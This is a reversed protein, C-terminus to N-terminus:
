IATLLSGISFRTQLTAGNTFGCRAYRWSPAHIIEAYFGGGAVATTPVSKIRRWNTNDRSVDLWLTGTQDSEASTRFEKAYTAANAFATATATVTLDRSAGTFSAAAALVTSSEDFWIGAGAVAGARNTGAALTPTNASLTATLNLNAASAQHVTQVMRQYPLESLMASARVNGGAFATSVRVRIYGALVPGAFMRTTIAAITIAAINPTPTLATIEEVAWVNGAPANTPDNTQEFIIAGASIGAGGIIQISASHFNTADYWGSGTGTLLDINLAAISAAAGVAVDNPLTVPSSASPQAAGLAPTKTNLAALTAETSLAALQSTQLTVLQNTTLNAIQATVLGAVQQTAPLNGIQMTALPTLTALQATTLSVLQNAPFNAIQSTVLGAVQQTAPLNGIQMTALPTLTALQATTLAVTGAIANTNVVNTKADLSEAAARIANAAFLLAALTTQTAFEIPEGSDPDVVAVAQIELTDAGETRTFVDVKHVADSADKITIGSM